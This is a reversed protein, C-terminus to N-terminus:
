LWCRITGGLAPLLEGLSDLLFELAKGKDWKIMPRVELVKRGQTLRLGPYDKLVSRVQEFLEGWAAEEVCRFHVSLCFKNNEVKAGPISAEVQEVLAGYVEEIVPLFESAPQCLVSKAEKGHHNPDATPGRIDMGHSGAYYLEALRVFGFVQSALSRVSCCTLTMTTAKTECTATAVSCPLLTRSGFVLPRLRPLSPFFLSLERWTSSSRAVERRAQGTLLQRRSSSKTHTHTATLPPPLSRSKLSSLNQFAFAFTRVADDDDGEDRVDGDGGLM